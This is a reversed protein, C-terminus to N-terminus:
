ITTISYFLFFVKPVLIDGFLLM